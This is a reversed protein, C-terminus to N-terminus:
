RGENLTSNTDSDWELGAEARKLGQELIIRKYGIKGGVGGGGAM